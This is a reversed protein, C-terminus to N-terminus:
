AAGQEKKSMAAIDALIQKEIAKYAQNTMTELTVGQANLLQILRTEAQDGYAFKANQQLTRIVRAKPDEQVVNAPKEASAAAPTPQAESPKAAPRKNESTKAPAPKSPPPTEADPDVMEETPICFLQFMAYKFAVSMAKNSAKDGSDMGEGIVTACVSSGDPAYVTYKMTLISYKLMGGNNTMREEREQKLVEPSCFLGYKQMVPHLGNMVADIGRYNFKQQPNFSTKGIAGIDAMAKGILEYIQAM